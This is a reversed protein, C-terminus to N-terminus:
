LQRRRKHERIQFLRFWEYALPKQENLQSYELELIPCDVGMLFEDIEKPIFQQFPFAEDLIAWEILHDNITSKKLHRVAMVQETTAGQLFLRITQRASQNYNQKLGDKVLLYLKSHPYQKLQTFFLHIAEDEFLQSYPFQQVEEPLLQYAVAGSVQNGSFQNALFDSQSKTLGRLLQSLEDRLQTPINQKEQGRLWNKVHQTYYPSNEIPVYTNEEYSLYSIVQVVFKILRWNKQGTKGFSFYDIGPFEVLQKEITKRGKDTLQYEGAREKLLRKQCCKKLEAFFAEENLTPFAGLFPLIEHFFGYVLVSNTRRGRLLHYLTTGKMKHGEKFFSLILENM